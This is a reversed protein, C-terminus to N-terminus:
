QALEKCAFSIWQNRQLYGPRLPQSTCPLARRHSRHFTLQLVATVPKGDLWGAATDFDRFHACDAAAGRCGSQTLGFALFDSRAQGGPVAILRNGHDVIVLSGLALCQSDVDCRDPAHKPDDVMHAQVTSEFPFAVDGMGSARLQLVAREVLDGYDGAASNFLTLRVAMEMAAGSGTSDRYVIARDIPRASIVPGRLALWVQVLAISLSLLFASAAVVTQLGAELGVLRLLRSQGEADALSSGRPKPPRATSQPKRM